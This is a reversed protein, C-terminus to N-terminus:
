LALARTVREPNIRPGSLGFRHRAMSFNWIYQRPLNTDHAIQEPAQYIVIPAIRIGWCSFTLECLGCQTLGGM